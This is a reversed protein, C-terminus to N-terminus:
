SNTQKMRKVSEKILETLLKRNVDELKNIYLRSSGTKHKGLKKMM